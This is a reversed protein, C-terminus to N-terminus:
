LTSKFWQVTEALALNQDAPLSFDHDAKPLRIFKNLAKAQSRQDEYRDAHFASVVSDKEGYIHLFPIHHLTSLEDEMRLNFFQEFFKAGALQGNVVMMMEAEEPSVGEKLRMWQDHWQKGNFLPAWLVLSKVQPFRSAALVAITGGFSRGMLGIRKPDIKPHNSVYELAKLADSVFGEVTSETFDGESDGSGRFDFRLSAIGNAALQKALRVYLRNRGSKHGGLGHCMVVAPINSRQLPLHLVAFIKQGENSIIIPERDEIHQM